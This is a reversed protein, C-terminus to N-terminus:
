LECCEGIQIKYYLIKRKLSNYYINKKFYSNNIYQTFNISIFTLQASNNGYRTHRRYYHSQKKWIWTGDTFTRRNFYIGYNRCNNRIFYRIRCRQFVSTFNFLRNYCRFTGYYGFFVISYISKEAAQQTTYRYLRLM